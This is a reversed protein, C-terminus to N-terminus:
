FATECVKVQPTATENAVVRSVTSQQDLKNSDLVRRCAERQRSIGGEAVGEVRKLDEGKDKDEGGQGVAYMPFVCEVAMDSLFRM